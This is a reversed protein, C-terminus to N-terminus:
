GAQLQKVARHLKMADKQEQEDLPFMAYKKNEYNAIFSRPIVSKSRFLKAENEMMQRFCFIWFGYILIVLLIGAMREGNDSLHPQGTLAEILDPGILPACWIYVLRWNM